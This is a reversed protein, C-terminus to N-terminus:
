QSFGPPLGRSQESGEDSVQGGRSIEMGLRKGEQVYSGQALRMQWMPTVQISPEAQVPCAHECFGCGTCQEFRVVPCAVEQGQVQILHVAGYPCAEDCILCPQDHAWALCTDTDIVATGMKAWMKEGPVLPRIAETPCVQGCANCGPECPGRRPVALPSFMGSFGNEQWAPQLMNTPCVKMCLGCRICQNQFIDEPVSGPPRILRQPMISGKDGRAWFEHLGNRGLFALGLGAGCAALLGRRGPLFLPTHGSAPRIFSVAQVPCVRVCTQCVICEGTLTHFPDEPIAGMPCEEQCRGCHICSEAVQRKLVPRQGLLTFVAGSPCLYRCWFRPVLGDLALLLVFFPVLFFLTGYRAPDGFPLTMDLGLVAAASELGRAGHQLLFDALPLVILAYLRTVLSLASGWHVINLSFLASVAMVALLVIKIRRWSNPPTWSPGRSRRISGTQRALDFTTGFPCIFGCFFRGLLLTGVMLVALAALGPVLLGTSLLVGFAILPDLNLFAEVPLWSALPFSTWFLLGLFLLLFFLQTARRFSIM